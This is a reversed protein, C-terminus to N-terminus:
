YYNIIYINEIRVYWSDVFTKNLIIMGLPLVSDEVGNRAFWKCVPSAAYSQRCTNGDTGVVTTCRVVSHSALFRLLRDVMTVVKAPLPLQVVLEATLLQDMLGLEIVAKITFPVAFGGLLKLAFM